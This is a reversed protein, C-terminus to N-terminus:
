NTFEKQLDSFLRSFEAKGKEMRFSAKREIIQLQLAYIMLSDRSFPDYTQNSKLFDFYIRLLEEEGELPNMTRVARSIREALVEDKTGQVSYAGDDNWGLKRAREEALYSDVHSIYAQWKKMLSSKPDGTATFVATELEKYDRKSMQAKCKDMFEEYSMPAEADVDLMPLTSSLYYYEAM